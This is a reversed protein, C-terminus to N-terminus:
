VTAPQQFFNSFKRDRLRRNCTAASKCHPTHRIIDEFGLFICSCLFQYFWHVSSTSCDCIPKGPGDGNGCHPNVHRLSISQQKRLKLFEEGRTRAFHSAVQSRTSGLPSRFESQDWNRLEWKIWSVNSRHKDTVTHVSPKLLFDGLTFFFTAM